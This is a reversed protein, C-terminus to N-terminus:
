QVTSGMWLTHVTRWAAGTHGGRPVASFRDAGVLSSHSRVVAELRSPGGRARKRSRLKRRTRMKRGKTNHQSYGLVEFLVWSKLCFCM